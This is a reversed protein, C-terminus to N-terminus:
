DRKGSDRYHQSGHDSQEPQWATYSEEKNSFYEEALNAVELTSKPKRERM